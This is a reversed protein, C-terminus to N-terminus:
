RAEPAYGGVALVEGRVLGYVDPERHVALDVYWVADAYGQFEGVRVPRDVGAERLVVGYEGRVGARHELVLDLVAVGLRVLDDYGVPEPPAGGVSCVRVPGGVRVHDDVEVTVVVELSPLLFGSLDGVGGAVANVAAGLDTCDGDGADGGYGVDHSLRVAVGPGEVVVVPLALFDVEDHCEVLRHVHGARDADGDADAGAGVAAPAASPVLRTGAGVGQAEGVGDLGLVVVVVAYADVGSAAGAIVAVAEASVALYGGGAGVGLGAQAVVAELVPGALVHVAPGVDFRRLDRGFGDGAYGVPGGLLYLEGQVVACRHVHGACGGDVQCEVVVVTGEADGGM